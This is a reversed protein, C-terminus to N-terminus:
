EEEEDEELEADDLLARLNEAEDAKAAAAVTAAEEERALEALAGWDLRTKQPRARLPKLEVGQKRYNQARSKLGAKTTGLEAMVDEVYEARQWARVFRQAGEWRNQPSGAKKAAM